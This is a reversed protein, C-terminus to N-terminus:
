LKRTPHRYTLCNEFAVAARHYFYNTDFYLHPRRESRNFCYPSAIRLIPKQFLKTKTNGM